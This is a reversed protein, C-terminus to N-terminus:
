KNQDYKRQRETKQFDLIIDQAMFIPISQFYQILDVLESDESGNRLDGKEVLMLYKEYKKNMIDSFATTHFLSNVLCEYSYETLDEVRINRELDYVVASKISSVVFPSHTAVIFQINPFVKTLFPLIRKQWAIHLHQEIEDILVIGPLDYRLHAQHEMRIVIESFINFLAAYGSAMEDLGFEERDPLKIKFCMDKLSFKLLLQNNEFLERLANQLWDFWSETDRIGEIEGNEKAFLKEVYMYVLLQEFSVNMNESISKVKTIDVLEVTKAKNMVLKRDASFNVLIIQGEQYLKYMDKGDTDDPLNSKIEIGKLSSNFVLEYWDSGAFSKGLFLSGGITKLVSTKGCGNTGMLLLHKKENPSLEIKINKLHRIQKITIETLYVQEMKDGM